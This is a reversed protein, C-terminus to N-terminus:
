QLKLKKSSEIEEDSAKNPHKSRPMVQRWKHRKLVRYVQGKNTDLNKGTKKEYAEKIKSTEIIQGSEAEEKFDKLLEAEENFSLNRHNGKYHNEIIISLGNQCYKVVLQSIYNESYDTAASIETRKMGAAHMILAKLRRDVNKNKNKKRAEEIEKVQIESIKNRRPM